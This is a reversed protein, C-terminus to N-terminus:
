EFVTMYPHSASQNMYGEIYLCYAFFMIVVVVYMIRRLNKNNINGIAIPLLVIGPLAYYFRLRNLLPIYGNMLSLVCAGLQINLFGRDRINNKQTLFYAFLYILLNIFLSVYGNKGQVEPANKVYGTYASYELAFDYVIHIIIERVVVIFVIIAIAKKWDIHMKYLFYVPFFIIASIHFGCAIAIMISFVIPKKEEIFRISYLCIACGVMQRIINLSQFFFCMGFLLFISIPIQPSFRYIFLYVLFVFIISTLAIFWQFSVGMNYMAKLIFSFLYEYEKTGAGGTAGILYYLKEYEFYDSGVGYRIISIVLLPAAAIILSKNRRNFRYKRGYVITVKNGIYFGIISLGCVLWYIWM